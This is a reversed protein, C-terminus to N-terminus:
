EKVLIERGVEEATNNAETRNWSVKTTHPIPPAIRLAAGSGCANRSRVDGVGVRLERNLTQAVM